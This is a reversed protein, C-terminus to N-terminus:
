KNIVCDRIERAIQHGSEISQQINNQTGLLKDDFEIRRKRIEEMVIDKEDLKKTVYLWVRWAFVIGVLAILTPFGYKDIVQFTEQGQLLFFLTM